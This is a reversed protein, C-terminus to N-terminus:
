RLYRDFAYEPFSRPYGHYYYRREIVGGNEDVFAMVSGDRGRWWYGTIPRGTIPHIASLTGDSHDEFSLASPLEGQHDIGLTGYGYAGSYDGPPIEIAQLLEAEMMGLRIRDFYGKDIALLKRPSIQSVILLALIAVVAFSSFALVLRKNKIAM